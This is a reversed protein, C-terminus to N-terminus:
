LCRWVFIIVSLAEYCFIPFSFTKFVFHAVIPESYNKYIHRVFVMFVGLTIVMNFLLSYNYLYPFLFCLNLILGYIFNRLAYYLRSDAKFRELPIVFAYVKYSIIGKYLWFVVEFVLWFLLAQAFLVIVELFFNGSALDFVKGDNFYFNSSISSEAEYIMLWVFSFYLILKYIWSSLPQEQKKYMNFYQSGM